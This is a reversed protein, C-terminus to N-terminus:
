FLLVSRLGLKKRVFYVSVLPKICLIFATSAATGTIDFFYTAPIVLMFLSAVEVTNLILVLREFGTYVLLLRAIGSMTAFCTGITLIILASYAYLYGPGFYLLLTKSFFIITLGLATIILFVFANANDVYTQLKILGARSESLQSIKSKLEQYLNSPILNIISVITLVAAYYGVHLRSSSFVEVILLDMVSAVTFIINNTIMRLSTQYWDTDTNQSVRWTKLGSKLMLLIKHNTSLLIFLSLLVYSICLIIVITLNDLTHVFFQTCVIFVVLLIIYRLIDAFFTPLLIHNNCLLYTELLTAIAAFPSIWLMYIALHYQNIEQVGLFHLLVMLAFSLLALILTISFTKRILNINWVIYNTAMSKKHVQLYKALFRKASVNTGFLSVSVLLALIKLALNYDGYVDATLHKALFINFVFKLLFGLITLYLLFFTNKIQFNLDLM